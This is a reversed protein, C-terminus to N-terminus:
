ALTEAPCVHGQCGTEQGLLALGMAVSGPRWLRVHLSCRCRSGRVPLPREPQPSMMFPPSGPSLASSSCSCSGTQLCRRASTSHTDPFVPPPLGPSGRRGSFISSVRLRVLELPLPLTSPKLACVLTCLQLRAGLFLLSPPHSAGWVPAVPAHSPPPATNLAGRLGTLGGRQLSLGQFDRGLGGLRGPPRSRPQVGAGAPCCSGALERPGPM